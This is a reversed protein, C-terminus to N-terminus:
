GKTNHEGEVGIPLLISFTTGTGLESQVDITGGHKQVIGYSISLGLGVGKVEHKTTFFPEFIHELVSPEIGTGDDAIDIRVQKDEQSTSTRLNGGQPMAERANIIINYFVQKLQNEAYQVKPLCPDLDQSIRVHSKLLRKEELILIESLLKNIDISRFPEDIPRYFDIMQRVLTAVRAIERRALELYQHKPNKEPFEESLLDICSHIGYIPNSVEHAISAALKATAALKESQFLRQQLQRMERLDRSIGVSGIPQDNEGKLLSLSLSIPISEGKKNLINTEYHSLRGRDELIRLIHEVDQTNAYFSMIPKGLAEKSEYGTLKEAAENFTVVNGNTDSVTIADPSSEIVRDLFVPVTVDMVNLMEGATNELHVMQIFPTHSEISRQNAPDNLTKGQRGPHESYAAVRHEKDLIIVYEIDDEEIARGVIQHLAIYNYSLLFSTSATAISKAIAIGRKQTQGSLTSTQRQEIALVVLGMLIVIGLTSGIHFKSRLSSYQLNM